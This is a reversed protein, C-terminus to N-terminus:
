PSNAAMPIATPATVAWRAKGDFKEGIGACKGSLNQLPHSEPLDISIVVEDTALTEYANTGELQLKTENIQKGFVISSFQQKEGAQASFVLGCALVGAVACVSNKAMNDGGESNNLVIGYCFCLFGENRIGETENKDPAGM